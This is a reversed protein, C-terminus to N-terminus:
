SELTASEGNNEANRYPANGVIDSNSNLPLRVSITTGKRPKSQVEIKGKHRQVIGYSVALGLGVGKVERKTTFFPTFLKAMNEPSIGCGTDSVQIMVDNVNALTRLTLVGNESMAQISNLILNTCVQQLQDFDANIAPVTSDLETVVQIHQFKAAHLALEYARTMVENINVARFSPPSQRAFDLLNRILKTCRILEKEMKGLYDLATEPSITGERTKRILLQDYTLVGSLPNNVEHAISASLQGLSSLKEAQILQEQSEKLREHSENLNRYALALQDQMRKEETVDRAIHLFDSPKGEKMLLTTTLKIYAEAGDRRVLRQGYPQEIKEGALLRNKVQAATTLSEKDLFVRVNMNTLEAVKYGTLNEAAANVAILDGNLDHVMIADHANEFLERYKQESDRLQQYSQELNILAAQRRNKEKRYFQLWINGLLGLIIVGLTEVFADAPYQSLLFVRPLMIAAAIFLSIIGGWLNFATAAYIVPILLLIREFAHRTLGLFYFVSPESTINFQQPYQLFVCGGFLVFLIWLHTNGLLYRWRNRKRQTNPMNVLDPKGM